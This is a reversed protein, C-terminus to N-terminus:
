KVTRDGMGGEGEYDEERVSVEIMEEVLDTCMKEIKKRQLDANYKDVKYLASETSGTEMKKHRPMEDAIPELLDALNNSLPVNMGPGNLRRTAVKETSKHDKHFLKM